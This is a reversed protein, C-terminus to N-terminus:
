QVEAQFTYINQEPESIGMGELLNFGEQISEVLKDQDKGKLSDLFNNFKQTKDM